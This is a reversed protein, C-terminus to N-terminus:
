SKPRMYWYTRYRWGDAAIFMVMVHTVRKKTGTEWRKYLTTATTPTSNCNVDGRRRSSETQRRGVIQKLVTKVFFGLESRARFIDDDNSCLIITDRAVPGSGTAATNILLWFPLACTPYLPWIREAQCPLLRYIHKNQRQSVFYPKTSARIAHEQDQHHWNRFSLM